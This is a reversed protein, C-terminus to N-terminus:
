QWPLWRIDPRGSEGTLDDGRKGVVVFVFLYRAARHVLPKLLVYLL